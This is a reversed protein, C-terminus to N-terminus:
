GAAVGEGGASDHAWPTRARYGAWRRRVEPPAHDQWPKNRSGEFHLIAPKGSAGEAGDAVMTNWRGGLPLRLDGLVAVTADQEPLILRDGHARAFEAIREFSRIARLEELDLLMVGSNFYASPEIGLGRCYAAGSEPDPFANTAAALAYGELDM